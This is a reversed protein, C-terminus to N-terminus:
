HDTTLPRYALDAVDTSATPYLVFSPQVHSSTTFSSSILIFTNIFTNNSVEMEIQQRVGVNRSSMLQRHVPAYRSRLESVGQGQDMKPGM